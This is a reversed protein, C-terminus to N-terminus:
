NVNDSVVGIYHSKVDFLKKNPFDILIKCVNGFGISQIAEQKWDPLRPEFKIANAKLVGVPVAVVVNKAYISTGNACVIESRGENEIVAKM